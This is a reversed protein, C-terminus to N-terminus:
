IVHGGTTTSGVASTMSDDELSMSHALRHGSANRALVQTRVLPTV